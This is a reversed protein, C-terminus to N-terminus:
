RRRGRNALYAHLVARDEDPCNEVDEVVWRIYAPDDAAVDSALEGEHKGFNFRGSADLWERPRITAPRSSPSPSSAPSPSNSKIVGM